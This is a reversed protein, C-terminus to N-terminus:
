CPAQHELTREWRYARQLRWEGEVHVLSRDRRVDDGEREEVHGIRQRTGDPLVLTQEMVTGPPASPDVEGIAVLGGPSSQYLIGREAVPDWGQWFTWALFVADGREGWLCGTAALGGPSLVFRLGYRETGGDEERYAANDAIWAGQSIWALDARWREVDAVAPPPASAEPAVPALLPLLLLLALRSLIM